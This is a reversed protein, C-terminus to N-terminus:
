APRSPGLTAPEGDGGRHAPPVEDEGESVYVDELGMSRAECRDSCCGGSLEWDRVAEADGLVVQVLCDPAQCTRGLHRVLVLDLAVVERRAWEVQTAWFARSEDVAAVVSERHEDDADALMRNGMELAGRIAQCLEKVAVQRRQVDKAWNPLPDMRDKVVKM